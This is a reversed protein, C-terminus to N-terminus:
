LVILTTFRGSTFSVALALSASLILNVSKSRFQSVWNTLNAVKPTTLTVPVAVKVAGGAKFLSHLHRLAM